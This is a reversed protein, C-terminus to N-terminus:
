KKEKADREELIRNLDARIQAESFKGMKALYDKREAVTWGLAEFPQAFPSVPKDASTQTPQAQMSPVNTTTTATGNAAAPAEPKSKAWLMAQERQEPKIDLSTEVKLVDKLYARADKLAHNNKATAHWEAAFNTAETKLIAAAAAEGNGNGNTGASQGPSGTQEAAATAPTFEGEIVPYDRLEEVSKMGRLADAFKDRLGFGRARMQLMRKPNTHWPAPNLMTSGDRTTIQKREDWLHATKADTVSYRAEHIDQGRRKIQFVATLNDGEGEWYEKHGEYAPHSQVVALMDDGYIGPRGNIVAIAVVSQLVSLGLAQGFKAAVFVDGPRNFYSKPVLTSSAIVTALEMAEALNDPMVFIREVQSQQPPDPPVLSLSNSAM